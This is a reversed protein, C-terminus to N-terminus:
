TTKCEDCAALKDWQSILPHSLIQALAMKSKSGVLIIAVNCELFFDLLNQLTNLPHLHCKDIIIMKLEAKKIVTSLSEQSSLEQKGLKSALEEKLTDLFSVASEEPFAQYYILPTKLPHDLEEIFNQIAIFNSSNSNDFIVGNDGTIFKNRLWNSAVIM